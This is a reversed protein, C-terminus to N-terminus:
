AVPRVGPFIFKGMWALGLKVMMAMGTRGTKRAKGLNHWAEGCRFRKLQASGLDYALVGVMRTVIEPSAQDGWPGAAFREVVDLRAEERRIWDNVLNGDHRRREALPEPIFGWKFQAAARLWLDMDECLRMSEDFPGCDAWRERRFLLTTTITFSRTVLLDVMDALHSQHAVLHEHFTADEIEIGGTEDGVWLDCFVFDVEPNEAMFRTQMELKEPRWLDDSDLFAVLDQTALRLGHNRAASPGQNAQKVYRIKDGFRHQLVPETDDNSGDDIVLIEDAPHSQALVSEIAAATFAARNYTPIIVSVGM